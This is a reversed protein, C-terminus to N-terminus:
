IFALRLVLDRRGSRKEARKKKRKTDNETPQEYMSSDQGAEECSRVRMCRPRGMHLLNHPNPCKAHVDVVVVVVVCDRIVWEGVCSSRASSCALRLSTASTISSSRELTSAFVGMVSSTPAKGQTCIHTIHTHTSVLLNRTCAHTACMGTLAKLKFSHQFIHHFLICASHGDTESTSLNPPLTFLISIDQFIQVHVLQLPLVNHYGKAM